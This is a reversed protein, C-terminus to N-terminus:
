LESLRAEFGAMDPPPSAEFRLREGTVPHLFGLVAAHLAQRSLSAAKLAERV